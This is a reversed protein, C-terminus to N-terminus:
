KLAWKVKNRKSSLNMNFVLDKSKEHALYYVIQFADFPLSSFSTEKHGENRLRRTGWDEAPLQKQHQKVHGGGPCARTHAKYVHVCVCTCACRDGDGPFLQMETQQPKSCKTKSGTGKGTQKPEWRTVTYGAHPTDGARCLAAEPVDQRGCRVDRSFPATVAMKQAGCAMLTVGCTRYVM